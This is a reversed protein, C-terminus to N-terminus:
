RTPSEPAPFLTPRVEWTAVAAFKLRATICGHQTIVIQFPRGLALQDDYYIRAQPAKPVPVRTPFSATLALRVMAVHEGWQLEHPDWLEVESGDVSRILVRGTKVAEVLSHVGSM